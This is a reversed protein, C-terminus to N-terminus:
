SGLLPTDSFRQSSFLLTTCSQALSSFVEIVLVMQYFTFDFIDDEATVPRFVGNSNEVPVRFKESQLM